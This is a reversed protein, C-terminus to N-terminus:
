ARARGAPPSRSTSATGAPTARCTARRPCHFLTHTLSATTPPSPLSLCTPVCGSPFVRRRVQKFNTVDDAFEANEAIFDHPVDRVPWDADVDADADATAFRYDTRFYPPTPTPRRGGGMGTPKDPKACTINMGAYAHYCQRGLRLPFAQWAICTPDYCCAMRCDKESFRNPNREMGACVAHDQLSTPFAAGCRGPGSEPPSSPDDGYHFRWGYNFPVVTRPAPAAARSAALLCLLAATRLLM